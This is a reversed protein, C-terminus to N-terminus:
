QRSRPAEPWAEAVDRNRQLMAGGGEEDGSGDGLVAYAAVVFPCAGAASSFAVCRRGDAASRSARRRNCAAALHGRAWYHTM